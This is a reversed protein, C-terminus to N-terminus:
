KKTTDGPLAEDDGEVRTYYPDKDILKDYILCGRQTVCCGAILLCIGAVLAYGFCRAFFERIKWIDAFSPGQKAMEEEEKTRKYHMGGFGVVEDGEDSKKQTKAKKEEALMHVQKKSQVHAKMEAMKNNDVAQMSSAAPLAASAPASGNTSALLAFSLVFLLTVVGATRSAM